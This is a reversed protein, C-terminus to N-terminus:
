PMCWRGATACRPLTVMVDARCLTSRTHGGGGALPLTCAILAARLLDRPQALRFNWLDDVHALCKRALVKGVDRGGGRLRQCLEPRLRARQLPLADTDGDTAATDSGDIADCLGRHGEQAGGAGLWEDKWGHARVTTAAGFALRCHDCPVAHSLLGHAAWNDCVHFCRHEPDEIPDFHM